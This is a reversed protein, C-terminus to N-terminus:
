SCRVAESAAPSTTTKITPLMEPFIEPLVRATDSSSLERIPLAAPKRLPLPTMKPLAPCRASLCPSHTTGSLPTTVVILVLPSILSHSGTARVRIGGQKM